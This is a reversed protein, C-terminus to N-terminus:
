GASRRERLLQRISPGMVAILPSPETPQWAQLAETGDQPWVAESHIITGAAPAERLVKLAQRVIRRQGDADGPLGLPHGFLHEVALTRPTGVKEAWFPMNTVLITSIGAMEIQRALVPM